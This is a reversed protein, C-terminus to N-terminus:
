TTRFDNTKKNKKNKFIIIIVKPTKLENTSYICKKQSFITFQIFEFSVTHGVIKVQRFKEIWVSIVLTTCEIECGIGFVNV